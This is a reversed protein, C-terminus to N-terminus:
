HFIPGKDLSRSKLGHTEGIPVESIKRSISELPEGFASKVNLSGDLVRAYRHTVTRLAEAESAIARWILLAVGFLIPLFKRMFVEEARSVTYRFPNM